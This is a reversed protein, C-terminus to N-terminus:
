ITTIEHKNIISKIKLIKSIGKENLHEKNEILLYVKRWRLYSIHKRSQLHYKDFYQIVNRASGLSTSGYYYTDQSKRYGINGGIFSKILELIDSKKQDIQYNLRIEPRDRTTRNIIQIQFSGDADTFGALWHNYFYRSFNM